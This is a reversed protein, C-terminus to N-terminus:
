DSEDGGRRVQFAPVKSETDHHPLPLEKRTVLDRFGRVTEATPSQLLMGRPIPEGTDSLVGHNTITVVQTPEGKKEITAM